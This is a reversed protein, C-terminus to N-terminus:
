AIISLGWMILLALGLMTVILIITALITSM